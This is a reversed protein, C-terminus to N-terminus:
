FGAHISKSLLLSLIQSIQPSTAPPKVGEFISMTSNSEKVVTEV